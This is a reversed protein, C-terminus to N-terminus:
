VIVGSAFAWRKGRWVGAAYVMLLAGIALCAITTEVEGGINVFGVFILLLGLLATGLAATRVLALNSSIERAEKIEEVSRVCIGSTDLNRREIEAKVWTVMEAVYDNQSEWIELLESDAKARVETESIM